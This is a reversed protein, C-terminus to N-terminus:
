YKANNRSDDLYRAYKLGVLGIQEGSRTESHFESLEGVLIKFPITSGGAIVNTSMFAGQFCSYVPSRTILLKSNM